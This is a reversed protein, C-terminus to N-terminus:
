EFDALWQGVDSRKEVSLKKMVNRVHIRVTEDTLFLENSIVDNGADKQLYGLVETERRTLKHKEAVTLIVPDIDVVGSVKERIASIHRGVDKPTLQLRRAIERRAVGETLLLAVEREEPTFLDEKGSAPLFGKLEVDPIDYLSELLERIESYMADYRRNADKCKALLRLAALCANEAETTKKMDRYFEALYRYSDALYPDHIPSDSRSVLKKRDEIASKLNLEAESAKGMGTYLKGLAHHYEGADWLFEEPDRLVLSEVIELGELLVSEADEYRRSEYYLNGLNKTVDALYVEFTEPNRAASRRRLKLAATLYKESEEFRQTEMYLFGLANNAAALDHENADPNRDYLKQSIELGAKLMDESKSWQQLVMQMKGLSLFTGSLASEYKDPADAALRKQIEIAKSFMNEAESFRHADRNVIAIDKYTAAILPEYRDPDRAVLRLWIKIARRYSEDAETMRTHRWYLRGLSHHAGAAEPEYEGGLNEWIELSMKYMEESEATRNAVDYLNGLLCYLRGMSDEPATNDPDKYYYLLKEATKIGEPTRTQDRLFMAYELMAKKPRNNREELRAAERYCDDVGQWSMLAEKVLAAQLLEGIRADVSEAAQDLVAENSDSERKIEKLDLIADAEELLGHEMLWLSEAHRDSLRGRERYTYVDEILPYLRKEIARIKESMENRERSSKYFEEHIKTDDPNRLVQAKTDAFRANLSVLGAKLRQLEGHSKIMEIHELSLLETKGQWVKCDELKIDIGPLGLQKIRMLIGLKVAEISPDSFRMNRTEAGGPEERFATVFFLGIDVCCENLRLMFEELEANDTQQRGSVSPILVEVKKM